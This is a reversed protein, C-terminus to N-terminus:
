IIVAIIAPPCTRSSSVGPVPLVTKALDRALDISPVNLLICNVGSKSGDSTVPRLM